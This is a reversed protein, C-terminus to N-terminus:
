SNHGIFNGVMGDLRTALEKVAPKPTKGRLAVLIRDVLEKDIGFKEYKKARQWDIAEEVALAVYHREEDLIYLRPKVDLIEIPLRQVQISRSNDLVDLGTRDRYEEAYYVATVRSNLILKACAVCPSCTTYLTLDGNHYPSKILANVEAHICGCKGPEDSDCTNPLGAANGNYGMAVVSQGGDDTIVCGVQLRKCTARQRVVYAMQMFMDPKTLRSM